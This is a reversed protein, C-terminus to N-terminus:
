QTHQSELRKLVNAPIKERYAATQLGIPDINLVKALAENFDDGAPRVKGNQLRSLYYRTPEKGTICGIKRSIDNLRLNSDQISKKLLEDYKSVQQNSM